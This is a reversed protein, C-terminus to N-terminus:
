TNPPVIELLGHDLEWHHNRCLGILNNPDNVVSILTEPPFEAIGKIHCCEVHISYGCTACNELKGQKKAISHAHEGLSSKYSNRSGAKTALEALTYQGFRSFREQRCNKCLKHRTSIVAGCIICSGMKKRKPRAKNAYSAACSRCCFRDNKTPTGCNLCEIIPKNRAAQFCAVSCFSRKDGRKMGKKHYYESRKFEKNCHSCVLIINDM